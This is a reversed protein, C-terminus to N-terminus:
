VQPALLADLEELLHRLEFPKLLFSRAGLSLADERVQPSANGTMFVVPPPDSRQSLDRLVALGNRNPMLLDLIIVDLKARAIVDLAQVGDVATVVHYGRMQLTQRLIERVAEDDDVVLVTQLGPAGDAVPAEHETSMPDRTASPLIITFTDGGEPGRDLSIRGGHDELISRCVALAIGSTSAGHESFPEFVDGSPTASVGQGNHAFQVIVSQRDPTAGTQITLTGGTEDMADEALTFLNLFVHEFRRADLMVRHLGEAYMEEVRIGRRELRSKMTAVFQHVRFNILNPELRPKSHPALAALDSRFRNLRRTERVITDLAGHSEIDKTKALMRQAQSSILGLPGDLTRAIAGTFRSLRDRVAAADNLASPITAAPTENSSMTPGVVSARLSRAMEETRVAARELAHWQAVIAGLGRAYAMLDAIDTDPVGFDTASADVIIQGYSQGGCGMPVVILGDRQPTTEGHKTHWAGEIKEMGLERVARLIPTPEDEEGVSTECLDVSFDALPDTVTRWTTGWLKNGATDTVFCVGPAVSLGERVTKACLRVVSPLPEGAHLDLIARQLTEIRKIRLRLMAVAAPTDLSEDPLAVPSDQASDDPTEAYGDVSRRFETRAESRIGSLLSRDLALYDALAYCEEPIPATEDASRIQRALHAALKTVAITRAPFCDPSLASPAIHHLWITDILGQPLRHSEAFWKGAEGHHFGFARSEADLSEISDPDGAPQCTAFKEPDLAALVWKGLNHLLGALLMESEDARSMRRALARASIGTALATRCMADRSEFGTSDNESAHILEAVLQRLGADGLTQIASQLANGARHSGVTGAALVQITLAPDRILLAEIESVTLPGSALRRHVLNLVEPSSPFRAIQAIRHKAQARDM